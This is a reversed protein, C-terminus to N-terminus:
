PGDEITLDTDAARLDAANEEPPLERSDEEAVTADRGMVHHGGSGFPGELPDLVEGPPESANEYDARPDDNEDFNSSM